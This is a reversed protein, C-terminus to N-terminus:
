GYSGRVGGFTDQAIAGDDRRSMLAKNILDGLSVINLILVLPSLFM